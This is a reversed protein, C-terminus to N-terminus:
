IRNEAPVRCDEFMVQATPQAKWGMKTENKGFSLGPTGSEVVFTSIGAAGPGGTRAMVVYLDSFGGGSIFAKSGNLLYSDGERVASTRLSAADSGADPETLCYSAIKEMITLMPLFRARQQEDGFADIMWSCMNHISLFAATAVCGRSLQEFILAADLRGLGSG